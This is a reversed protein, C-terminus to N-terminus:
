ASKVKGLVNIMSNIEDSSSLGQNKALFSLITIPAGIQSSALIKHHGDLIYHALCWHKTIDPEGQWNAPQKVDLVSIALATPRDGSELRSIYQAVTKQELWNKPFMPIVFEFLQEHNKMKQSMCRYYEIKPYHPLGLFGDIGWLKIQENSFYDDESGLQVMKPMAELLLVEYEGSPMIQGILDILSADPLQLGDRLYNAIEKSSVNKNAGELREFFFTCTDCINGIHYAPKEDITLYRDWVEWQGGGKTKFDLASNESEINIETKHLLTSM